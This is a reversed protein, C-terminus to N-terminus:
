NGSETGRRGFFDIRAAKVIELALKRAAKGKNEAQKVSPHNFILGHKPSKEGTRLHRFLAKEAGLVQVKSAPMKALKDLGKAKVILQAALDVGLLEALNRFNEDAFQKLKRSDHLIDKLHERSYYESLKRRADNFNQKRLKEFIDM